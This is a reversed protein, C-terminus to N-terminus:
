APIPALTFGTVTVIDNTAVTVTNVTLDGGGGTATVTGEIVRTGAANTMRFHGITGSANAAGDQWTGAKVKTRGSAAAFAPSPLPNIEALLTGNAANNAGAGGGTRFQVIGGDFQDGLDDLQKHALGDNTSLSM